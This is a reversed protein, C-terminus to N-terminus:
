KNGLFQWLEPAAGIPTGNSPGSGASWLDSDLPTNWVVPFPMATDARSAVPRIDPAQPETSQRQTRWRLEVRTRWVTDTRVQWREVPKEVWVVEKQVPKLLFAAAAALLALTAAWSLPIHRPPRPGSRSWAFVPPTAAGAM